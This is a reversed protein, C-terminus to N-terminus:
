EVNRDEKGATCFWGHFVYLLLLVVFCKWMWVENKLQKVQENYEKRANVLEMIHDDDKKGIRRKIRNIVGKSRDDFEAEAWRFLNCNGNDCTLFRRGPNADIADEGSGLELIGKSVNVAEVSFM